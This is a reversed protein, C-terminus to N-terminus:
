KRSGVKAIYDEILENQTDRDLNKRIVTEAAGIVIESVESQLDSLAQKKASEVDQASRKRIKAAEAEARAILDACVRDAELRADDILSAAKSEASALQAEYRSKVEDAEARTKEAADIDGQIKESRRDMSRKVAPFLKWQMLALLVVFAIGGWIIENVEPIIPNPASQCSELRAEFSELASVATESAGASAAEHELEEFAEAGNAGGWSLEALREAMCGGITEAASVPSAALVVVFSVAASVGLMRRVRSKPSHKNM